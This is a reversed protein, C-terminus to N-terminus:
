AKYVEVINRTYSPSIDHQIATNNIATDEPHDENINWIYTEYVNDKFKFEANERDEVQMGSDYIMVGIITGLVFGGFLPFTSSYTEIWVEYGYEYLPICLAAAVIGMIMPLVSIVKWRRKIKM